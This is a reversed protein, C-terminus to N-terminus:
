KRLGMARLLQGGAQSLSPSKMFTKYQNRVSCLEQETAALAQRLGEMALQTDSLTLKLRSLEERTNLFELQTVALENKVEALALESPLDRRLDVIKGPAPLPKSTFNRIAFFAGFPKDLKNNKFDHVHYNECIHFDWEPSFDEPLWGSLHEQTSGGSLGWADAQGPEVHQAMFGLPTFVVIQRRTIRELHQLVFLGDKKPLHEIVDMMFVSDFSNETFYHLIERVGANLVFVSKDEAYRYLLIDVYEQFLELMIHLCPRFFNMPTIGCGIDLVVDTPLIFNKYSCEILEEPTSYYKIAM